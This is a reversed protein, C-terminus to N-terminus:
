DGDGDDDAEHMEDGESVEFACCFMDKDMLVLGKGDPAWRVDRVEFKQEIFPDAGIRPVRFSKRASFHVPGSSLSIAFVYESPCRHM